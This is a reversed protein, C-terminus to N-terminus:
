PSPEKSGFHRRRFSLFCFHVPMESTPLTLISVVPFGKFLRTKQHATKWNQVGSEQLFFESFDGVQVSRGSAPGKGVSRSRGRSATTGAEPNRSKEQFFLFPQLNAKPIAFIRVKRKNKQSLFRRNEGDSLPSFKGKLTQHRCPSLPRGRQGM